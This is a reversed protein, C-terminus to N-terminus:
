HSQGGAVHWGKCHACRYAHAKSGRKSMRRVIDQAIHQQLRDKRACSSVVHSRLPPVAQGELLAEARALRLAAEADFRAKANARREEAKALSLRTCAPCDRQESGVVRCFQRRCCCTVLEVVVGIGIDTPYTLAASRTQEM